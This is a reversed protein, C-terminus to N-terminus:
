PDLDRVLSFVPNRAEDDPPELRVDMRSLSGPASSWQTAKARVDGVLFGIPVDKGFINAHVGFSFLVDRGERLREVQGAEVTMDAYSFRMRSQRTRIIYAMEAIGAAQRASVTSPLRFHEGTWEEIVRLDEVLRRLSQVFDPLPQRTLEFDVTPRNGERDEITLSGDGHMAEVMTLAEAQEAIPHDGDSHRYNFRAEGGDAIRRLLVTM